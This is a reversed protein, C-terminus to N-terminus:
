YGTFILWHKIASHDLSHQQSSLGLADVELGGEIFGSRQRRHCHLLDAVPSDRTIDELRVFQGNSLEVVPEGDFNISAINLM